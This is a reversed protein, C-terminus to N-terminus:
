LGKLGAKVVKGASNKPLAAMVVIERPILKLPLHTKCFQLIGDKV